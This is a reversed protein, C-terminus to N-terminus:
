FTGSWEATIIEFKVDVVDKGASGTDKCVGTTSGWEEAIIDEISIGGSIGIVDDGAVM